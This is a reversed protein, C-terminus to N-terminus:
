PFINPTIMVGECLIVAREICNELERVNGKWPSDMLLSLGEASVEKVGTKMEACYKRVFFDVLLPIDEQRDKLPPLYIPVINLRYYLDHRFKGEKVLFEL